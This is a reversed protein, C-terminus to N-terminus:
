ESKRQVRIITIGMYLAMVIDFGVCLWPYWQPVYPATQDPHLGIDWLVHMLWGMVIFWFSYFYGLGIMFLFLVLGIIEITVFLINHSLLALGVYILAAVLLALMSISLRSKHNFRKLLYLLGTALLAGSVILFLATTM